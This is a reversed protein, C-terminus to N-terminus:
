EVLQASLMAHRNSGDVTPAPARLDAARVAEGERETHYQMLQAASLIQKGGSTITHVPMDAPFGVSGGTNSFTVPAIVPACVGMTCKATITPASQEPDVVHGGGAHNCEVGFPALMPDCLSQKVTSVVTSLPAGIDNVRPAQGQREGYGTPILFPKGSRITFKDVGCICRKM